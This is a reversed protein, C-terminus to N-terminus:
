LCCCRVHVAIVTSLQAKKGKECAEPFRHLREPGLRPPVSISPPPTESVLEEQRGQGSLVGHTNEPLSGAQTGAGGTVSFSWIARLVGAGSYQTGNRGAWGEADGDESHAYPQARKLRFFTM